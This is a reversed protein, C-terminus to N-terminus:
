GRLVAWSTVLDSAESWGSEVSLRAVLTLGRGSGGHVEPVQAQPRTSGAGSTVEIRVDPGTRHLALRAPPRGHRVANVALESAVLACDERLPEDVDALAARVQERAFAGASLDGPLDWTEAPEAADDM